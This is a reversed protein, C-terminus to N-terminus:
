SFIFRPSNVNPFEHVKEGTFREIFGVLISYFKVIEEAHDPCIMYM